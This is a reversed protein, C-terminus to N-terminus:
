HRRWVRTAQKYDKQEEEALELWLALAEGELLIPLKLAKQEDNWGNAISCIEYRTFWESVDGTPFPKPVSVHIQRESTRIGGTFDDEAVLTIVTFWFYM